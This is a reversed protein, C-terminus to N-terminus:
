ATAQDSYRDVEYRTFRIKSLNQHIYQFHVLGLNNIQEIKTRRLVLELEIEEKSKNWIKNELM